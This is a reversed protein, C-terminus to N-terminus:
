GLENWYDRPFKIFVYSSYEFNIPQTFRKTNENWITWGGTQIARSEENEQESDMGHYRIIKWTRNLKNNNGLEHKFCTKAIGIIRPLYVRREDYRPQGEDNVMRLRTVDIWSPDETKQVICLCNISTEESMEESFNRSYDVISDKTNIIYVNLM